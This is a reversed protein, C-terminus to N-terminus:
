KHVGYISVPVPLNGTSNEISIRRQSVPLIMVTMFAWIEVMEQAM